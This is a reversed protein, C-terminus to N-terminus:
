QVHTLKDPNAVARIGFVAGDGIELEMVIVARGAADTVVVGPQSNVSMLSAALGFRDFSRFMNAVLRSAPGAGVTPQRRTAVKGGGDGVVVVDEALLGVLADVDGVESARLFAGAIEWSRERTASFRRRGAAIAKRARATIQRVNAESKGLTEAIEDYGLGFVDHLLFAAREAPNLRELVVLVAMSVSDALGAHELPDADPETVIPEPLWEGAYVERKHGERRLQDIALRTVITTALARRSRIEVGRQEVELLRLETDQVLDEAISVRGTMRYAISFLLGRLDRDSVEDDSVEDSTSM